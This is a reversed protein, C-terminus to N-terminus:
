RVEGLYHDLWELTEKVLQTRPVSHGGDYSIIRKHEKPTGLLEFFPRQSTEYPFFFDYKGNLMLVPTKFRPLFHLPDAEPKSPQFLLGAVQLVSVKIRKDVAPIIGGMAGGWSIGYYAIKAHDIEKRTELYDISRMADKAWMIVHEKWFNTEDPYDSHLADGREYTSKYIPYIVARGSKLLFDLRPIELKDSSRTHIAGSGPFYVVTQYPPKSSKPLFLFATMREGGYAANFSIKEKIWDPEDTASEVTVNLPAKDYAYQNLYIGFEKDSAIHEHMFDRFPLVIAKEFEPKKDGIYKICRLGNTESRDFPSQAYADNFAYPQDNWGGGLIFNSGRNSANFCWERVNGGLDYLGYRNMSQTSGVEKPGDGRLNSLPVIVPSAWTFAVLDWHHITPLSKGAFEAYAAAEYWSIGSVPLRGKGSPFDGVEWTSPGQRGTKDTFLKMADDWGIERGDKIFPYKWFKRDKYGGQDIFKKFQQNTVEYRDMLFSGVREATLHELGPMHLGAPAAAIEFSTSFDPILEMEEPVSGEQAFGFRLTDSTWGINWVLDYSTKYGPKEAKLRSFGLPFRISDIPTRGILRWESNPDSYPKAYVTAGSPDSYIYIKRSFRPYLRALLPDDPIVARAKEGLEFATWASMGEAATGDQVTREIQPLATERAWDMNSMHNFWRVLLATLIITILLAFIIKPRRHFRKVEVASATPISASSGSATVRIDYLFDAASQYRANADKTLAKEIIGPIPENIGSRIKAVPKPEENLISYMIAHEYEHIFPVRGTLMEYFVVGLSWLDSRHDLEEGRAQDPSMYAMTGVTSGTKTVPASGSRKALGFDMIKVQGDSTIMINSSKIDRHVIGKTHSAKLGEAIQSVLSLCRDMPIPNEQAIVDKLERGEVFEMVIFMQKDHEEIGHITCINPHNLASAAKAEQLFRARDQESNSLREPLFKLAVFRDLNTDQAKYVIGMGGEGIKELIKYHSFIQGIM